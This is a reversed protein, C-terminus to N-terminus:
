DQSGHPTTIRQGQANFRHAFEQDPRLQIRDGTRLASDGRDRIVLAGIDDADAHVFSDAGLHEVMSVTAPWEGETGSLYIHEPRLGLTEAGLRKAEPGTIFNMKPAGIFGAVFLNHPTRYLELPTGTQEIRGDNMVVIRIQM